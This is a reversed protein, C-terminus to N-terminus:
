AAFTVGSRGKRHRDEHSGTEDYRKVNKTVVSSSDKLTRSIKRITQGEHRLTIIYQRKEKSIQVTRGM